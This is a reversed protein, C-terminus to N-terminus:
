GEGFSGRPELDRESHTSRLAISRLDLARDVALIGDLHDLEHQMLRAFDDTLHVRREVWDQDRYVLIGRTAAELRVLLDPFSMCDEWYAEPEGDEPEFVPNLFVRREGANMAVIRKHVGIQPAAIARGWGHQAQFELMTDHLDEIVGELGQTEALSVPSSPEYLRPDGLLLIPRVAM